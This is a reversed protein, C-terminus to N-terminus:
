KQIMYIIPNTVLSVVTYQKFKMLEKDTIFYTKCPEPLGKRDLKGNFTIPIEKIEKYYSPVMYNPLIKNLYNKIIKFNFKIKNNNEKIINNNNLIYYCILYKEGNSKEKDIVVASKIEKIEKICNEIENLEIRQGRIKVQNDTRGCCVIEGDKTWKGMDGTRYMKGINGNDEYYPCNLFKEKTLEPRNLYGKGVGYGGIYIEGVVDIPVPNMYKDLIYIKFNCLPKGVTIQSNHKINQGINKRLIKINSVVTTETPGYVSLVNTYTNNNQIISVIELDVKEGGLLVWKVRKISNLFDVNFLYVKIRSPVSFIYNINYNLILSSLLEPNNFEEDNSLIISSGMLLPYNIEGVSIDHSFKCISLVNGLKDEYLNDKGNFTQSYLCYNILNFHTILTGKPKGTTGSTFLVYCIDNGYNINVINETNLKYNHEKLSYIPINIDDLKKEKEKNSIFKLILKCRAEKIMYGISEKPLDPDIPLYAAGSKMIGLIAVVFYYSRESIVPIIDNRNVGKKRLFMGISNSMENLKKYSIKINNNVIADNNKFIKVIKMFEVHYLKDNSYECINNNFKYLLKKKEEMPIYEIAKIGNKEMKNINKIVEIYSEVINEIIFSDYLITNYEISIMYDKENEVVNFTIDFKSNINKNIENEREYLTDNDYDMLNFLSNLSNNEESMNRNSVNPQFVFCNNVKKLKLNTILESFSIDQNNYVKILVEMNEKVIDLFSIEDKNYKLLLPLTSVFMGAMNEVYHNNRNASIISTYIIDQGSYKSLIFGYISIFFATKSINLSKIFENIIKSMSEDICKTIVGSKSINENSREEEETESKIKSKNNNKSPINVPDYDDSFMEKYFSIQQELYGSSKKEQMNIAYDSFQIELEELIGKSYYQNLEKM